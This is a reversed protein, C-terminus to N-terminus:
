VRQKRRRAVTGVLGLGALLMAWTEPEPVAFIAVDISTIPKDSLWGLGSLSGSEFWFHKRDPNDNVMIESLLASSSGDGYHIRTNKFDFMGYGSVPITNEIKDFLEDLDFLPTKSSNSNVGDDYTYKDESRSDYSYRELFTGTSDYTYYGASLIDMGELFYFGTYSKGDATAYWFDYSRTSIGNDEGATLTYFGSSFTDGAVPWTNRIYSAYRGSAEDYSSGLAINFGAAIDKGNGNISSDYLSGYPGLDLDLHITEASVAGSFLVAAVALLSKNM